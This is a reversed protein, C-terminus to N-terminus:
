EYRSLRKRVSELDGELVKLLLEKQGADADIAFGSDIMVQLAPGGKKDPLSLLLYNDPDTNVALLPHNTFLLVQRKEKYELILPVLYRVMDENDFEHEPEDIIVPGFDENRIIMCLIAARRQSLGLCSFQRWEPKDVRWQLNMMLRNRGASKDWQLELLRGRSEDELFRPLSFLKNFKLIAVDEQTKLTDPTLGFHECLFADLEQEIDVIQMIREANYFGPQLSANPQADVAKKGDQGLSYFSVVPEVPQPSASRYYAYEEPPQDGNLKEVFLAVSGRVAAPDSENIPYPCAPNAAAKILNHLTSKGVGVKGSICNLNRNFRLVQRGLYPHEFVMGRLYLGDWDKKDSTFRVRSSPMQIAKRLGDFSPATMKLITSRKAIDLLQHSDSGQFYALSPLNNKRRIEELKERVPGKQFRQPNIVEVARMRANGVVDKVAGSTLKYTNLLAQDTGDIHAPIAIGGKQVILNITDFPSLTGVSMNICWEEVPIGVESLLECVLFHARRRPKQPPFIALIHVGNTSIEVGPLVVLRTRGETANVNQAADDILEYWTPATLDMGGQDDNWLTGMGNHDTVAVLSLKKDLFTQVIQGAKLRSYALLRDQYSHVGVPYGKGPVQSRLYKLDRLLRLDYYKSKLENATKGEINRVATFLDLGPQSKLAALMKIDDCELFACDVNALDKLDNIAEIEQRIRAELETRDAPNLISKFEQIDELLLVDNLAKSELTELVELNLAQIDSRDKLAELSDFGKLDTLLDASAIRGDAQYSIGYANFGYKDKGRGDSSSPTHFHLDAAFFRTGYAKEQIKTFDSLIESPVSM